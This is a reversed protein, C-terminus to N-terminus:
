KTKGTKKKNTNEQTPESGIVLGETGTSTITGSNSAFGNVNIPNKEPDVDEPIVEEPRKVEQTTAIEIYGTYDELSEDYLARTENNIDETYERTDIESDADGAMKYQRGAEVGLVGATAVGIAGFIWGLPGKGLLKAAAIGTEVGTLGQAGASVYCMTRTQTDYGGSFDTIAQTNAMAEASADFDGQLGEMEDTANGVFGQNDEQLGDIEGKGANMIDATEKLQEKDSEELAIGRAQKNMINRRVDAQVDINAKVDAIADNTDETASEIDSALDESYQRADDIRSQEESILLAAQEEEIIQLEKLSDVEDKNPEGGAWYAAASAVGIGVTVIDSLKAAKKTTQITGTQGAEKGAEQTVTEVSKGTVKKSVLKTGKGTFEQALFESSKGAVFTATQGGAWKVGMTTIAGAVAGGASVVPKVWDAKSGDHGSQEKAYNRGAELAKDLDEDSMEYKTVDQAIDEWGERKDGWSQQIIGLEEDTIGMTNDGFRVNYWAKFASAEDFQLRQRNVPDVIAMIGREKTNKVFNYTTVGHNVANKAM